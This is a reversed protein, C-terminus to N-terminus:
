DRAQELAQVAAEVKALRLSVQRDEASRTMSYLKVTTSGFATSDTVPRRSASLKAGGVLREVDWRLDKESYPGRVPVEVVVRLKRWQEEAM